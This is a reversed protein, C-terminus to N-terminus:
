ARRDTLDIQRTLGPTPASVGEPADGIKSRFGAVVSVNASTLGGKREACPCGPAECQCLAWRCSKHQLRAGSPGSCWGSVLSM